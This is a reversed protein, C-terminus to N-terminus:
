CFLIREALYLTYFALFCTSGHLDNDKIIKSHMGYVLVGLNPPTQFDSHTPDPLSKSENSFSPATQTTVNPPPPTYSIFHSNNPPPPPPPQESDLM